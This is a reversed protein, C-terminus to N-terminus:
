ACTGSEVRHQKVGGGDPQYQEGGRAGIRGDSQHAGHQERRAIEDEQRGSLVAASTSALALGSRRLEPMQRTRGRADESWRHNFDAIGIGLQGDLRGDQRRVFRNHRHYIDLVPAGRGADEPRIGAPGAFTVADADANAAANTGAPTRAGARSGAAYASGSASARRPTKM